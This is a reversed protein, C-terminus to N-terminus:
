FNQPCTKQYPQGPAYAAWQAQTMNEHVKGCILHMFFRQSLDALNLRLLSINSSNQGAIALVHAHPSFALSTVATGEALSAFLHGDATNWISAKGWSDGTVLAPGDHSFAVSRVPHGQALTASKRRTAVDWLGIGGGDDGAALTRGDPSFAV